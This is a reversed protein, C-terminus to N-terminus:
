CAIPSVNRLAVKLRTRYRLLTRILMLDNTRMASLSIGNEIGAVVDLALHWAIESEIGARVLAARLSSVWRRIPVGIPRGLPRETQVHVVGGV